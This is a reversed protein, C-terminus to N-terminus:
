RRLAVAGSPEIYRIQEIDVLHMRQSEASLRETSELSAALVSLRQIDESMVRAETNHASMLYQQHASDNVFFLQVVM